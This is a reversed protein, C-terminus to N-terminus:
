LRMIMAQTLMWVHFSTIICAFILIPLMALRNGNVQTTQNFVTNARYDTIQLAMMFGAAILLSQTAFLVDQSVWMNMHRHHKEAMSLPLTNAGLPNMVVAMVGKGERILHNLNHALHYSFALPLSVFAFTTFSRKFKPAATSLYGASYVAASYILAVIAICFVLGISFAWVFQGSDGIIRGLNSVWPEWGALMTLGHFETLALLCIMFWAEDWRPRAGQRAESNPARLRWAINDAPCSKICNGCSTCYSNQKLSGMMLSTPCPEINDNGHYCDLTHCDTCTQIDIPRLESISLQSYAGITRGVPCFHHCFAKRKFLALSATALVVMLVAVLATAYPNATIGLGLELWTLGILLLLAPWVNNLYRPVRLNLSNNPHARKWLRRRVLWQAIADWPCVACWASGLFFVSFVLGAWWINWTLVTAFNREPIPTGAFGAIIIALFFIVMVLRLSLLILQSSYVQRSLWGIVPIHGLEVILPKQTSGTISKKIFFLRVSALVMLLAILVVWPTPLGSHMMEM